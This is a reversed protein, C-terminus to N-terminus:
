FNGVPFPPGLLFIMSIEPPPSLVTFGGPISFGRGELIEQSTPISIKQFVNYM